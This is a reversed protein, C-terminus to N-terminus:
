SRAEQKRLQNRANNLAGQVSKRARAVYNAANYAGAARLQQVVLRLDMEALLIHGIDDATVPRNRQKAKAPRPVLNRVEEMLEHRSM